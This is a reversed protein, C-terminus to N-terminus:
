ENDKNKTKDTYMQMDAAKLLADIQEGDDPFIASGISVEIDLDIDHYRVPKKIESKIRAILDLLSAHDKKEPLLLAFEDGGLRAMMDEKRIIQMIRNSFTKLLFDGADHGHQDNVHKFRDIDMYLLAFSRNHRRCRAIEEEVRHYFARRTLTETLSDMMAIQFLKENLKKLEVQSNEVLTELEQNEILLQGSLPRLVAALGLGFFLLILLVIIVLVAIVHQVAHYLDMKDAVVVIGWPAGKIPAFAAVYKESELKESFFGSKSQLISDVLRSQVESDADLFPNKKLSSQATQVWAIKDNDLYYIYASGLKTRLKEDIIKQFLSFNFAFFDYGITTNGVQIPSMVIIYNKGQYSVPGFVDLQHDFMNKIMEASIVKAGIEAVMNKNKDLRMIGALGIHTDLSNQFIPTLAKEVQFTDLQHQEYQMMIKVGNMRSSIQHAAEQLRDFSADLVLVRVDRSFVLHQKQMDFLRAQLPLMVVLAIVFGTLIVTSIAYWRITKQLSKAKSQM